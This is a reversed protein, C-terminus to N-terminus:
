PQDRKKLKDIEVQMDAMRRFQLALERRNSRAIEEVESLRRAIDSQRRLAIRREGTARRKAM